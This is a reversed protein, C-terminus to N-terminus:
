SGRGWASLVSWSLGPSSQPRGWWVIPTLWRNGTQSRGLCLCLLRLRQQWAVALSTDLLWVLYEVHSEYVQLLRKISYRPLDDPPRQSFKTHLFPNHSQHLPHRTRTPSPYLSSNSTFTTTWWPETSLWSSEMMISLAKDRSNQEPTSMVGNPQSPRLLEVCVFVSHIVSSCLVPQYKLYACSTRFRRMKRMSSAVQESSAACIYHGHYFIIERCVRM